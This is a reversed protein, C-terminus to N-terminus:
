NLKQIRFLSLEEETYDPYRRNIETLSPLKPVIIPEGTKKRIRIETCDENFIETYTRLKDLWNTWWLKPYPPAIEGGKHIMASQEAFGKRIEASFWENESNTLRFGLGNRLIPKKPTSGSIRHIINEYFLIMHKPPIKIVRERKKLEQKLLKKTEKKDLDKGFDTPLKLRHKMEDTLKLATFEGGKVRASNLQTEPVLTFVHELDENCNMLSGLYIENSTEAGNTNDTHYTEPNQKKTRYFLRDIIAQINKLKLRLGLIKLVRFAILFQIRNLYRKLNCHYASAFNLAGFSGASLDGITKGFIFVNPKLEPINELYDKYLEPVKEFLEPQIELVVFGNKHLYEAPASTNQQELNFIYDRNEKKMDM